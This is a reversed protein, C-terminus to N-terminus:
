RLFVDMGPGKSNYFLLLKLHVWRECECEDSQHETAFNLSWWDAHSSTAGWPLGLMLFTKMALMKVDTPYMEM